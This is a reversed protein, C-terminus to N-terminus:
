DEIENRLAVLNKILKTAGIKGDTHDDILTAFEQLLLHMDEVEEPTVTEPAYRLRDSLPAFHPLPNTM